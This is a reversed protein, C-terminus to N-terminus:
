MKRKRVSIDGMPILQEGPRVWLIPGDDSTTPDMGSLSSLPGWPLSQSLFPSHRLLSIIDQVCMCVVYMCIDCVYMHIYSYLFIDVIVGLKGFLFSLFVNM